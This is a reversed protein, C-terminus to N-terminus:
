SGYNSLFCVLTDQIRVMIYIVVAQAQWVVKRVEFKWEGIVKAKGQYRDWVLNLLYCM